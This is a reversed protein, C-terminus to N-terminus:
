KKKKPSYMNRLLMRVRKDNETLNGTTKFFSTVNDPSMNRSLLWAAAMVYRGCNTSKSDQIRKWNFTYGRTSNRCLFARISPSDIDNGLSDFYYAAQRSDRPLFLLVWHTGKTQSSGKNVVIIAPKQNPFLSFSPLLDCPFTGRYLRRTDKNQRLSKDLQTTTVLM